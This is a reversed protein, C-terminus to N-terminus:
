DKLIEFPHALYVVDDLAAHDETRSGLLLGVVFDLGLGLLLLVDRTGVSGTRSALFGLIPLLPGVAVLVSM